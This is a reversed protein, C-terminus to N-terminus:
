FSFRINFTCLFKLVKLVRKDVDQCKVEVINLHKSITTPREVSFRGEMEVEYESSECFLELTLEELVPSHELICALPTFDDPMCWCENLFLTLEPSSILELDTAESLGKLVVSHNDDGGNGSTTCYECGCQSNDLLKDCTDECDDIMRVFARVLSPMSDLVPTRGSKSSIKTASWFECYRLVLNELSPCSSFDLFSNRAQVYSLDLRTLHQSALPQDDLELYPTPAEEPSMNLSFVRVKRMMAHRLWHNVRPVDEHQFEGLKFECTHLPSEGGLLVRDMFERREKVPTLFDDDGGCGVRMGTAFRWLHRWRRALVCTRVSEPAPLFGLIHELIGDPMAEISCGSGGAPPVAARKSNKGRYM